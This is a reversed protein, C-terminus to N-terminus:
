ATGLLIRVMFIAWAIMLVIAGIVYIGGRLKVVNSTVHVYAQGIRCLVFIWALVVFIVDAHRTMISLITLVYFLVPLEFQNSFSNAVQMAKPPWNPERLAIDRSRVAGSDFAQKRAVAMAMLLVFTLTVEVFLPLLVFRIDM